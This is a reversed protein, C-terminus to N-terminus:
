IGRDARLMKCIDVMTPDSDLIHLLTDFATEEKEMKGELKQLLERTREMPAAALTGTARQWTLKDILGKGYLSAALGGPDTIATELAKLNGVFAHHQRHIAATM